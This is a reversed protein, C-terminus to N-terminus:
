DKLKNPDEQPKPQEAPQPQAIPVADNYISRAIKWGGDPQRQLVRLVNFEYSAEKGGSFPRTRGTITGYEFAYDGSIRVEHFQENYALIEQSKMQEVGERLKKRNAEKGVIPPGGPHITVIDDTWLRELEDTDLAMSARIDRDHLANIAEMDDALQQKQQTTPAGSRRKASQAVTATSLFVLVILIATRFL